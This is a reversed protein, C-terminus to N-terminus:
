EHEYRNFSGIAEPNHVENGEGDMGVIYREGEEDEMLAWCALHSKLEQGEEDYVVYWGAAPIIQVIKSM